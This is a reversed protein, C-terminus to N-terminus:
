NGGATFQKKIKAVANTIQKPGYELGKKIPEPLSTYEALLDEYGWVIEQTNEHVSSMSDLLSFMQQLGKRIVYMRISEFARAIEHSDPFKERIWHHPSLFLYRKVVDAYFHLHELNLGMVELPKKDWIDDSNILNSVNLINQLGAATNKEADLVRKGELEALAVIETLM